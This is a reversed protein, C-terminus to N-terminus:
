FRPRAFAAAPPSTPSCGGTAYYGPIGTGVSTNMENFRGDQRSVNIFNQWTTGSADTYTNGASYEANTVQLPFRNWEYDTDWTGMRHNAVDVVVYTQSPGRSGNTQCLLWVLRRPDQPQQAAAPSAAIWVVSAALFSSLRGPRHNLRGM